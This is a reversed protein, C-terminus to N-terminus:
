FYNDFGDESCELKQNFKLYEDIIYRYWNLNLRGDTIFESKREEVINNYSKMRKHFWVEVDPYAIYFWEPVFPSRKLEDESFHERFTDTCKIKDEESASFSTIGEWFSLGGRKCAENARLNENYKYLSINDKKFFHVIVHKFNFDIEDDQLIIDWQSNFENM